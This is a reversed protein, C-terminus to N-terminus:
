EHLYLDLIMADHGRQVCMMVPSQRAWSGLGPPAENQNKHGRVPPRTLGSVCVTM